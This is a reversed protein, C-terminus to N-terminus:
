FINLGFSFTAIGITAVGLALGSQAKWPRVQARPYGRSALVVAIGGFVWGFFPFFSILLGFSGLVLSGTGGRQPSQAGPLSDARESGRLIVAAILGIAGIWFLSVGLLARVDGGASVSRWLFGVVLAVASAAAM